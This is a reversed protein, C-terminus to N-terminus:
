QSAEEASEVPVEHTAGDSAKVDSFPKEEPDEEELRLGLEQLYALDDPDQLMNLFVPLSNDAAKRITADLELFRAQQEEIQDMVMQLDRGMDFVGYIPDRSGRILNEDKTAIYRAVISNINVRDRTHQQVQSGPELSRQQRVREGRKKVRAVAKKLKDAAKDESM